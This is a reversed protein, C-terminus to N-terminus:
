KFFFFLGALSARQQRKFVSGAVGPRLLLAKQIYLRFRTDFLTGSVLSIVGSFKLTVYENGFKLLSHKHSQLAKGSPSMTMWPQICYKTCLDRKFVFIEIQILSGTLTFSEIIIFFINYFQM